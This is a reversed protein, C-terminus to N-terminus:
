GKAGQMDQTPRSEFLLVTCPSGLACRCIYMCLVYYLFLYLFFYVYMYLYVYM